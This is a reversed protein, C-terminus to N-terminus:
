FVFPTLNQCSPSSGLVGFIYGNYELTRSLRYSGFPLCMRMSDARTICYSLLARQKGLGPDAGIIQMRSMRRFM